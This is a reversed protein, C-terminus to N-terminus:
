RSAVAKLNIRLSRVMGQLLDFFASDAASVVALDAIM